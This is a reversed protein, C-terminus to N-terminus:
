QINLAGGISTSGRPKYPSAKCCLSSETEYCGRVVQAQQEMNLWDYSYTGGSRVFGRVDYVDVGPWLKDAVQTAAGVGFYRVSGWQQYQGM